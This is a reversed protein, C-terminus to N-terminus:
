DYYKDFKKDVVMSSSYGRTPFEYPNAMKLDHYITFWSTFFRYVRDVNGLLYFDLYDVFFSGFIERYKNWQPCNLIVDGYPSAPEDPIDVDLLHSNNWHLTYEKYKIVEECLIVNNLSKELKIALEIDDSSLYVLAGEGFKEIYYKVENFTLNYNFDIRNRNRIHYGIVKNEKDFIDLYKKTFVRFSDTYEINNDFIKFSEVFDVGSSDFNKIYEAHCRNVIIQESINSLNKVNNGIENILMINKNTEFYNIYDHIGNPSDSFCMFEFYDKLSQCENLNCFKVNDIMSPMKYILMYRNIPLFYDNWRNESYWTNDFVLSRGTIRAIHFTSILNMFMDGIMNPFRFPIIYM